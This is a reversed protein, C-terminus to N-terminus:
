GTHGSHYAEVQASWGLSVLQSRTLWAAADGPEGRWRVLYEEEEEGDRHEVIDEVVKGWGELGVLEGAEGLSLYPKLQDVHVLLEVGRKDVVTYSRRGNQHVVKLPGRWRPELKSQSAM